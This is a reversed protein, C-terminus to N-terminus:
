QRRRPVAFRDSLRILSPAAALSCQAGRLGAQEIKPLSSARGAMRYFPPIFASPRSATKQRAHKAIKIAPMMTSFYQSQRTLVLSDWFSHKNV